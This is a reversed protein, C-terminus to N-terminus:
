PACFARILYGNTAYVIQVHHCAGPVCNNARRPCTFTGHLEVVWVRAGLDCPNHAGPTLVIYMEEQAREFLSCRLLPGGVAQEFTTLRVKMQTVVGPHSARVYQLALQEVQQQSLPAASNQQWVVLLALGLIGLAMIWLRRPPWQWGRSGGPNYPANQTRQDKQAAAM